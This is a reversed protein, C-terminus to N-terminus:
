RNKCCIGGFVIGIDEVPHGEGCENCYTLKESTAGKKILYGNSDRLTDEIERDVFEGTLKIVPESTVEDSELYDIMCQYRDKIVQDTFVKVKQAPEFHLRCKDVSLPHDDKLRKLWKIVDNKDNINM